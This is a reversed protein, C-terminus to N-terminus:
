QCHSTRVLSFLESLFLVSRDFAVKLWNFINTIPKVINSRTIRLIKLALSFGNVRQLHCRGQYKHLPNNTIFLPIQKINISFIIKQIISRSDSFLKFTYISLRFALSILFATFLFDFM